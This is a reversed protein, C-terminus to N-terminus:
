RGVAAGRVSSRRPVPRCAAGRRLLGCSRRALVRAISLRPTLSSIHIVRLRTVWMGVGRVGIAWLPWSRNLRCGVQCGKKFLERKPCGPRQAANALLASANRGIAPPKGIAAKVAEAMRGFGGFGGCTIWSLASFRKVWLPSPWWIAQRSLFLCMPRARHGPPKGIATKGAEAM